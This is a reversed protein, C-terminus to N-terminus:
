LPAAPSHLDAFRSSASTDTLEGGFNIRIRGRVLVVGGILLTLGGLASAPDIEPAEYSIDTAYITGGGSATCLQAPVNGCTGDQGWIYRFSANGSTGAANVTVWFQSSNYSYLSNNVTESFGTILGNTETFQISGDPGDCQLNSCSAADSASGTFGFPVSSVSGNVSLADVVTFYSSTPSGTITISDTFAASSSGPITASCGPPPGPNCQPAPLTGSGSLSGSYDLVTTQATALTPGALLAAALLLLTTAAKM